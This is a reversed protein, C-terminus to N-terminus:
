NEKYKVLMIVANDEEDLKAVIEKLRGQLKGAQYAEVLDPAQLPQCTVIPYSQPKAFLSATRQDTFDSNYLTYYFISKDVKDYVFEEAPFGKFTKFDAVRKMSRLFCYRATEATPALLMVPEMSHVPPTRVISPTFQGDQGFHYITDASPQILEWGDAVPVTQYFPGELVMEGKRVVLEIAEGEYPFTIERVVSGDQKSIVLHSSKNPVTDLDTTCCLIHETDYNYFEDYYGEGAFKFGRKYNGELDYVQIKRAPYDVVYLEAQAEDILCYLAMSYEEGSQGKRNIVRIGKGTARDFLYLNGDDGWNGTLVYHDSVAKVMAKTVFEDTTELPVYEVDFIDQLVLEKEPYNATVDITILDSTSPKGGNCSFMALLFISSLLINKPKM